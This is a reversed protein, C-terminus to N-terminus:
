VDCHIMDGVSNTKHDSLPFPERTEKAKHCIDCPSLHDRKSFGLKNGLISLVQDAPHGLKCHWLENSVHCVFVINCKANVCKGIENLNFLYLGNSESGTGVIKGQNLDQIYCKNEDFRVFFKSDKIMKNVSLLCVNYELIVFVDFLVIGSSLRL